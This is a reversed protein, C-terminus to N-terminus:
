ACKRKPLSAYLRAGLTQFRGREWEAHERTGHDYPNLSPSSGRNGARCGDSFAEILSLEEPSMSSAHRIM